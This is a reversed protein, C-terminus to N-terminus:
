AGAAPAISVADEEFESYTCICRICLIPQAFTRSTDGMDIDLADIETNSIPRLASAASRSLASAYACALRMSAATSSFVRRKGSM